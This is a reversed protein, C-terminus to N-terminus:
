FAIKNLFVVPLYAIIYEGKGEWQKRKKTVLIDKQILEKVLIRLANTPVIKITNNVIFAICDTEDDIWAQPCNPQLQCYEIVVTQWTPNFNNKVAVKLDGLFFDVKDQYDELPTALRYSFNKIRCYSEFIKEGNQGKELHKVGSPDNNNAYM